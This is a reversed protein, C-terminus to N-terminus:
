LGASFRARQTSGIREGVSIRREHERGLDGAQQRGRIQDAMAEGGMAAGVQAQGMQGQLGYGQMGLQGQAGLGQMATNVGATQFGLSAADNLQRSRLEADTGFQAQGAQQGAIGQQLSSSAGLNAAQRQRWAADEQARLMASSNAVGQMTSANARQAEAMGQASAGLGRGSRAMAMQQSMAQNAGMQLQAQAASPGQQAELGSLSAANNKASQLSANANRFDTTPTGRQGAALGQGYLGQGFAMGHGAIQRGQEASFGQAASGINGLHTSGAQAIGRARNVADDAGRPDRGYMFDRRDRFNNDEQPATEYSTGKYDMPTGRGTNGVSENSRNSGM